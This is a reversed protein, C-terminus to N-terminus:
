NQNQIASNGDGLQTILGWNINNVGGQNQEAYNGFSQFPGGCGNCYGQRIKAYNDNHEGDQDQHAENRDGFQIIIAESENWEGYQHQTALNFDGLQTISATNTNDVGEQVQEAINENSVFPPGGDCGECNGQSIEATNINVGDWGRQTQSASNGNGHQFITATNVNELGTQMQDATNLDGLQTISAWNITFFGGQFQSAYNDESVFPRSDCGECNGQFIEAFNENETGDGEVQIQQATNRHGNQFITADNDNFFGGQSQMAWNDNGIQEISATNSNGEGWQNQEAYNYNGPFPELGCADCSGQSIIADNDNGVGEQNQMARNGEGFQFIEADNYNDEGFQNQTASNGFGFQTIKATNNWNSGGQNQEAENLVTEIPGEDCGRCTGQLITADNDNWSGEQNQRAVNEDGVQLVEAWNNNDDALVPSSLLLLLPLILLVSAMKKM